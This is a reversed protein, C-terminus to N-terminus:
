HAEFQRKAFPLVNRDLIDVWMVVDDNEIYHDHWLWSPTTLFAGAEMRFGEGEVVTWAAPSGQVIFRAAEVRHRHANLPEGKRLCQINIDLVNTTSDGLQPHHLSLVRPLRDPTGERIPLLRNAAIM